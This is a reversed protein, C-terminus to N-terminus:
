EKKDRVRQPLQKSMIKEIKEMQAISQIKLALFPELEQALGLAMIIRIFTELSSQGKAELNKVTGVSVGAREALEQQKIRANLRHIRIRQGLELCIEPSTALKFTLINAKLHKKISM